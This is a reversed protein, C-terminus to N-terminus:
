ASKGHPPEPEWGSGGHMQQLLCCPLIPYMANGWQSLTRTGEKIGASHDRIYEHISILIVATQLDSIKGSRGSVNQGSIQLNRDAGVQKRHFPIQAGMRGPRSRPIVTQFAASHPFDAGADSIRISRLERRSGESFVIDLPMDFLGTSQTQQVTSRRRARPRIGDGSSAISRGGRSTCGNDSLLRETEDRECIGDGEPLRRTSVNGGEHLAYYRRIGEFFKADGLMGRLMHLVWAGKQYNLPNLKKMLDTLGPDVIPASHDISASQRPLLSAMTQKLAEPGNLHEYFLAEFYTAFGESLWLHDWDNRSISNGFWQHAIEHPM